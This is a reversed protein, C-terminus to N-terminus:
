RITVQGSVHGGAHRSVIYPHLSGALNDYTRPVPPFEVDLRTARQAIRLFRAHAGVDRAYLMSADDRLAPPLVRSALAFSKSGQKISAHGHSTVADM